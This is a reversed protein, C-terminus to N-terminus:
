MEEAFVSEFGSNTLLRFASDLKEEFDPQYAPYDPYFYQEHIMVRLADRNLFGRLKDLLAERGYLNMVADISFFDIGFRNLKDGKRLHAADSEELSYSSKPKEETGFLGLLGRVGNDYLARLGESTASCYHVTTTKALSNEGAFRLIEKHVQTCDSCVESYGSDIYPNVNELRSHFSLKLWDANEAWENKFRDTMMSLDFGPMEYFLNLQVKLRYKEHLRGYMALYPNSFLRMENEECLSKLFRINDDVTFCFKKM